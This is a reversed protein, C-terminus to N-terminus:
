QAAITVNKIVTSLVTDGNNSVSYIKITVTQGEYGTLDLVKSFSGNLLATEPDLGYATAADKHGQTTIDSTTYEIDKANGYKDYVRCIYNKTGSDVIFWGSLELSKATELTKGSFNATFVKNEYGGADVVKSSNVYVGNIYTKYKGTYVPDAAAITVNNFVTSLVKDGDNTIAYLKVTVTQGEFGSLDFTKGFKAGLRGDKEGSSSIGLGDAIDALGTNTTMNSGTYERDTKNGAADIITYVYKATGSEVIFWGGTSLPQM